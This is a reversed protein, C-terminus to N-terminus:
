LAAGSAAAAASTAANSVTAWALTSIYVYMENDVTNIYLAGVALANGDNDLTPAVAKAGLYRDDFSDYSAAAAAASGAAASESAAAADESVLAAAARDVALAASAASAAAAADDMVLNGSADFKLFKSARSALNPIEFSVGTIDQTDSLKITRDKQDILQQILFTLKDFAKEHIDPYFAGQSNFDTTQQPVYNSRAYLTYNDALPAALVIDGGGANGVGTLTYDTLYTLTTEVGAGTTQTVLVESTATITFDYSFTDVIGNGTYPGSTIDQTAVAM